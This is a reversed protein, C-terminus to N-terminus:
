PSIIILGDKWQSAIELMNFDFIKFYFEPLATEDNAFVLTSQGAKLAKFHLRALYGQGSAASTSIIAGVWRIWGPGSKSFIVPFDVGGVVGDEIGDDDLADEMQLLTNDFNVQVQYAALDTVNAVQIEVTFSAGPAVSAPASISVATTDVPSSMGYNAALLGFDTINIIGNSDFDARADYGATGSSTGYAVALIGFDTISIQGDNNADAEVLTGMNVNTSPATIIVGRKVNTLCHPSVVSIDYTGPSIGTAQAIATSGSKATNLSLSYLPTATLVDTPITTSPTFFKVTLPVSWGTDPRSGGQLTTTISIICNDSGGGDGEESYIPSAAPIMIGLCAVSLILYLSTKLWQRNFKLSKMMADGM